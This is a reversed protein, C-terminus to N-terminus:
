DNYNIMSVLKKKNYIVKWRNKTEVSIFVAFEKNSRLVKFARSIAESLSTEYFWETDKISRLKSGIHGVTVLYQM